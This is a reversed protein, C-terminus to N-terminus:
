EPERKIYEAIFEKIVAAPTTGNLNCALRFSNKLEPKMDVRLEVYNEKRYKIQADNKGM